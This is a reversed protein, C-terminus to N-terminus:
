RRSSEELSESMGFFTGKANAIFLRFMLFTPVLGNVHSGGGSHAAPEVPGAPLQAWHAGPLYLAADPLAGQSSQTGAPVYESVGPLEAQV